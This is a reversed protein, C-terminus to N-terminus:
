NRVSRLRKGAGALRREPQLSAFFNTIKTFISWSFHKDDHDRGALEAQDVIKLLTDDESTFTTALHTCSDLPVMGDTKSVSGKYLPGPTTSTFFHHFIASISSLESLNPEYSEGCVIKQIYPKIKTKEAASCIAKSGNRGCTQASYCGAHCFGLGSIVSTSFVNSIQSGGKSKPCYDKMRDCFPTGQSPFFTAAFQVCLNRDICARSLVLSATGDAVIFDAGTTYSLIEDQLGRDSVDRMMNISPVIVRSCIQKAYDIDDEQWKLAVSLINMSPNDVTLGHFLVCKRYTAQLNDKEKLTSSSTRESKQNTQKSSSESDSLISPCNSGPFNLDMNSFSGEAKFATIDTIEEGVAMFTPLGNFMCLAVISEQYDVRFLSGACNSSVYSAIHAPFSNMLDIQNMATIGGLSSTAASLDPSASSEM